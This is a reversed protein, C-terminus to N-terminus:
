IEAALQRVLQNRKIFMKTLQQRMQENLGLREGAAEVQEIASSIQELSGRLAALQPQEWDQADAAALVVQVHQQVQPDDGSWEVPSLEIQEYKMTEAFPIHDTGGSRLLWIACIGIMIAASAWRIISLRLIRPKQLRREIGAWAQEPASYVPLDRLAKHLVEDKKAQELGLQIAEWNGEPSQYEPLGQLGKKLKIRNREKPDM